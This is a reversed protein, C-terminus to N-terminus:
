HPLFVSTQSKPIELAAGPFPPAQSVRNVGAGGVLGGTYLVPSNNEQDYYVGQLKYIGPINVYNGAEMCLDNRGKTL